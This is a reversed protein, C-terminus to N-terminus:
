SNLEPIKFLICNYTNINLSIKKYDQIKSQIESLIRRGEDINKVSWCGFIWKDNISIFSYTNDSEKKLATYTDHSSIVTYGLETSKKFLQYADYFSERESLFVDTIEKNWDWQTFCINNLFPLKHYAKKIYLIGYGNIGKLINLKSTINEKMHDKGIYLLPINVFTKLDNKLLSEIKETMAYLVYEGVQILSLANTYYENMESIEFMGPGRKTSFFGYADLVTKFKIVELKIKIEHNDFSRYICFALKEIGIGEYDRNYKKIDKVRYDAFSDTKLWGPVDTNRPLLETVTDTESQFLSCSTFILLITIIKLLKNIM